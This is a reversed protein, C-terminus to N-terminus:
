PTSLALGLPLFPVVRTTHGHAPEQANRFGKVVVLETLWIQGM